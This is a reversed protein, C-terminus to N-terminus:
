TDLDLQAVAWARSDVQCASGLTCALYRPLPFFAEDIDCKGFCGWLTDPFVTWEEYIDLLNQVLREIGSHTM